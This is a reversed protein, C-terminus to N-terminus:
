TIQMERLMKNVDAAPVRCLGGESPKTHRRSSGLGRQGELSKIRRIYEARDWYKSRALTIFARMADCTKLADRPYPRFDGPLEDVLSQLDAKKMRDVPALLWATKKPPM